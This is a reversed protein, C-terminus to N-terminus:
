MFPSLASIGLFILCIIIFITIFMILKFMENSQKEEPTIKKEIIKKEDKKENELIKIRQELERIKKEESM